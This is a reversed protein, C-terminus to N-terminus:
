GKKKKDDDDDKESKEAVKKLFGGNADFLYEDKGIEIEYSVAGASGTIKFAEKIKKGGLSKTVYESVGKPLAATEIEEETELISGSPSILVSGEVERKTSKGNEMNVVMKKGDFEAEYNGEEKEWEAKLGPYKKAFADKVAAPVEADKVKQAFGTTSGLCLAALLTLKKM